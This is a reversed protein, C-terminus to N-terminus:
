ERSPHQCILVYLDCLKVKRKGKFQLGISVVNEYPGRFTVTEGDSSVSKQFSFLVCTYQHNLARARREREREKERTRKKERERERTRERETFNSIVEPIPTNEGEINLIVSTADEVTLRVEMLTFPNENSPTIRIERNSKVKKCGASVHSLL